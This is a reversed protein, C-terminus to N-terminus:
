AFDNIDILMLDLYVGQLHNFDKDITVLTANLVSATSAIWLDNKGMNRASTMLHRSEHKGQSFTDIEAYQEIVRETKIPYIAMGELLYNLNRIKQDGWKRQRVFSKLEGEVVVSTFLINDPRAYMRNFNKAFQPKRVMTLFINTDLLYNM